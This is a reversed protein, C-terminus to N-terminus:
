GDSESQQHAASRHSDAASGARAIDPGVFDVHEEGGFEIRRCVGERFHLVKERGTGDRREGNFHVISLKEFDFEGAFLEVFEADIDAIFNRDTGGGRIFSVEINHSACFEHASILKKKDM